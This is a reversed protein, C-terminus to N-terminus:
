RSRERGMKPGQLACVPCRVSCGCLIFDQYFAHLSIWVGNFLDQADFQAGEIAEAM